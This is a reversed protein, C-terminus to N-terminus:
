LLVKATYFGFEARDFSFGTRDFGFPVILALSRGNWGFQTKIWGFQGLGALSQGLLAV